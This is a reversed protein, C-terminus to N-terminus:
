KKETKRKLVAKKKEAWEKIFERNEKGSKPAVLMGLGFAAVLLSLKKLM